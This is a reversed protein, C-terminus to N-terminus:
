EGEYSSYVKRWSLRKVADFILWTATVSLVALISIVVIMKYLFYHIVGIVVAFIMVVFVRLTSGANTQQPSSFPLKSFGIYTAIASILLENSIGLLINPIAILGSTIILMATILVAFPFFFQAIGAKVSGSIIKGPNNIPTTFFIWAAKYKEYMTMQGLAAILLINSFYIVMLTYITGGKTQSVIDKFTLTKNQIVLLVMIVLMYGIAPYVKMKFNRTRLMMKWTFLFSAREIGNKTFLKSLLISYFSSSKRSSEKNTTSAEGTSGTIMSLKRNFSPAFYKVVIWISLIPVGVALLVCWWLKMTNNWAYLQQWAGAFWYTPLFIIGPRDSLEYQSLFSSSILRPVLQYGAYFTIAFVIQIYTIISQFREPTTIKLILIYCSNILFITFLTAMLTVFLFPIIALANLNITLFVIAPIIMPLAVKCVHIFIHLLRSVVFTKDSVPKPLIIFNDRVDILVSTFDAILISALVTVYFSFYITFQTEYTKGVMFSLLFILGMVTSLIMTGVTAYSVPKNSRKRQIQQFTNPRRDDMTLKAHLIVKLHRTNVGMRRYLGSPFLVFRLLISNIINM